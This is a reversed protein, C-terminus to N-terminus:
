TVKRRRAPLFRRLRAMVAREVAAAVNEEAPRANVLIIRRPFRRALARYGRRVRTHFALTERDLRNIERRHSVRALATRPDLDLLITLDPQLDDAAYRVMREFAPNKMLGRGFGQYAMTADSFRDCLIIMGRALLPQIVSQLHQSRGALYLFLEAKPRLDTHRIDLLLARIKEGMTTGGPERTTAVPYDNRRLRSALRALQTSKGSGEIGELTIFLGRM